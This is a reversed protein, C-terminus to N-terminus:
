HMNIIMRVNPGTATVIPRPWGAKRAVLEPALWLRERGRGASDTAPKFRFREEILRCTTADLSADGSSRTVRCRTVRGTTEITFRVEVEGGVKARRAAKPYDRDAITGSRWM